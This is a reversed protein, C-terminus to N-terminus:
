GNVDRIQVIPKVSCSMFIPIPHGKASIKYILCNIFSREGPSVRSSHNCVCSEPHKLFSIFASLCSYGETQMDSCHKRQTNSLQHATDQMSVGFRRESRWEKVGANQNTPKHRTPGSESYHLRDFRQQSECRPVSVFRGGRQGTQSNRRRQSSTTKFISLLALLHGGNHFETLDNSRHREAEQPCVCEQLVAAGIFESM